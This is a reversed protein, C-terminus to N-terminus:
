SSGSSTFDVELPLQSWLLDDGVIPLQVREAVAICLADGLSLWADEALLTRGDMGRDPKALTADSACAREM